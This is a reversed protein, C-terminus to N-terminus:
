ARARTLKGERQRCAAGDEGEGAEVDRRPSSLSLDRVRGPSLSSAAASM